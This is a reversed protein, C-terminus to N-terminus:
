YDVCKERRKPIIIEKYNLLLCLIIFFFQMSFSEFLMVFLISFIIFELKNLTASKDMKIKTSVIKIIYLLVIFALIGGEYVLTLFYCHPSSVGYFEYMLQTQNLIGHGIFYYNQQIYQIGMDWLTTRGSFTLDKKLIDVIIFEFYNQFRFIIFLFFFIITLLFYQFLTVNKFLAIHGRLLLYALVMCYFVLTTASWRIFVSIGIITLLSVLWFRYHKLYNKALVAISIALAYFPLHHNDYGLFYIFSYEFGYEDKFGHIIGDPFFIISIFNLLSYIYLLFFTSKVFKIKNFKIGYEFFLILFVLHLSTSIATIIDAKSNFFTFFLPILTYAIILFDFKTLKLNKLLIVTFVILVFIVKSIMNYYHINLYNVLYPPFAFFLLLITVPISIFYKDYIKLM